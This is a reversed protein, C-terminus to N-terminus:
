YLDIFAFRLVPAGPGPILRTAEATAATTKNTPTANKILPTKTTQDFFCKVHM